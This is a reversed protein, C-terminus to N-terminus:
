NDKSIHVDLQPFPFNAGHKPLEKYFAETVADYMAWYDSNLVWVRAEIVVASDALADIRVYPEPSPLARGDREIIDLMAARIVDYDDGYSVSVKWSCRRVKSTSFNNIVSTSIANNPVYITKKDTTHLVTNFLNISVVTGSVDQSEIYDGVRYPRLVLLMIGGAFNQLTGSLAMGIALGMSALVAIFSSSNFGLTSVIILTIFVYGLVKIATLLFSHLSVEVGRRTMIADALTVLKRLLWRGVYFIALSILFKIGTWVLWNAMESWINKVFDENALTRVAEAFRAKQVSDPVILSELKEADSQLFINLM